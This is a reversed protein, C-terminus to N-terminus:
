LNSVGKIAVTYALGNIRLQFNTKRKQQEEEGEKFLKGYVKREEDCPFVAGESLMFLTPKWVRKVQSLNSDKLYASELFGKRRELLAYTRDKNSRLHSQDIASPYMLSLTMLYKGNPRECIPSNQQTEIECHGFGISSNGGFGKEELLRLAAKLMSCYDKDFKPDLKVLFYFGNSFEKQNLVTVASEHYLNAAGTLRNITNHAIETDELFNRLDKLKEQEENTMIVGSYAVYQERKSAYTGDSISTFVKQTIYKAKGIKKQKRYEEINSSEKEEELLMPRPLFLLREPESKKQIYPFVSSVIFPATDSTYSELLDKLESEGYLARISWCIAGFLTDSRLIAKSFSSRPKLYVIM